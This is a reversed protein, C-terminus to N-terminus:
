EMGELALLPRIFRKYNRWRGVSSSYIKQRVQWYSSTAVTRDTRDFNLCREDWELGLFAVIRRTWKEQDAILEAYPVDLLAGPPLVTRWHTVLRHHERYYHALDSLDMTFNLVPSLEHFFCSVCTDIPDRRLYIVRANPFVLHVIGLYDSNFPAKDTVRQADLRSQTLVRLYGTALKRKLSESPVEDRVIAEHKRVAQAWFALEGAGKALPHSAIIQEVLSTGSRPMGVVLVPQASDSAGQRAGSLVEPTYLRILDDVLRTRASRDYKAAVTRQLENAREYSRFAHAFDGLDDYYKGIAYRIHAEAFPPLASAACRQASTLWGDDASTLKRLEALGSLAGPMKPDLELVRRYAAEAQDFRGELGAVRGMGALAEVHRPSARLVKEFCERADRPRGLFTLTLGLSSRADVYSPQLKIARRLPLESEEVRGTLRLVNALNFHADPYAAKIGIALRFQREAEWYRGLKSLAVGLNNHAVAHRPDSQLLEEYCNIAESYAHRELHEHGQALLAEISGSARGALVAPPGGPRAGGSDPSLSLVLMRTLEDVTERDVGKELLRWKFANALKARKFVNLRLPRAEGDLRQQFRQLFRRLEKARAAPETEMPRAGTPALATQLAFDDALATGVETAERANFWKFIM